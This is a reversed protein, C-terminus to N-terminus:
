ESKYRALVDLVKPLPVGLERAIHYSFGAIVPNNKIWAAASGIAPLVGPTVAATGVAAAGLAGGAVKIATDSARPVNTSGGPVGALASNRADDSMQQGVAKKPDPVSPAATKVPANAEFWDGEQTHPAEKPTPANDQFWDGTPAPTTDPM